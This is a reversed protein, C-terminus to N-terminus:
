YKSKLYKCINKTSYYTCVYTLQYNKQTSYIRLFDHLYYFTQKEKEGVIINQTMFFM